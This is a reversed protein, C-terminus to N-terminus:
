SRVRAPWVWPPWTHRGNVPRADDGVAVEVGAAGLAQVAVRGVGRRAVRGDFQSCTEAPAPVEGYAWTRSKQRGSAM